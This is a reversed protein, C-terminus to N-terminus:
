AVEVDGRSLAPGDPSLRVSTCSCGDRRPPIGFARGPQAGVSREGPRGAMTRVPRVSALPGARGEAVLVGSPEVLLQVYERGPQDHEIVVSCAGRLITCDILGAVEYLARTWTRSEMRVNKDTLDLEGRHLWAPTKPQDADAPTARV